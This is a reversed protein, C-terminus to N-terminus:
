RFRYSDYSDTCGYKFKYTGPQAFQIIGDDSPTIPNTNPPGDIYVWERKVIEGQMAECSAELQVNDVSTSVILNQEGVTIIPRTVENVLIDITDTETNETDDTCSLEFVYNGLSSPVKLNDLTADIDHSPTSPLCNKTGGSLVTNHPSTPRPHVQKWQCQQIIYSSNYARCRAVLQWSSSSPSVYKKSNFEISPGQPSVLRPAEM